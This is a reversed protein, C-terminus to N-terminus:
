ESVEVEDYWETYFLTGNKIMEATGKIGHMQAICATSCFANSTEEHLYGEAMGKGCVDCSRPNQFHTEYVYFSTIM